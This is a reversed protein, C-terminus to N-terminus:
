GTVLRMLTAGTTQALGQVVDPLAVLVTGVLALTLLIKFPFGLSFANLSPAIRTLLGLAVDALFLVALLPAAIQLASLMMQGLGGSLVDTLTALNIGGDLPIAKYSRFFGQLVVLYAGSALLLTTAVLQFFKGFVANGQQMMPDFAFSLSFGGFIDLLDGAAQVASFILLCIFGLAAGTLLQLVMASIIAPTTAPPAQVHGSAVVPLALVVSLMAKVTRPIAKSSFPPAIALWAGARMAALMVTLLVDAPLDIPM